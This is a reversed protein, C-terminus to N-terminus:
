VPHKIKVARHTGSAIRYCANLTERSCPTCLLITRGFLAEPATSDAKGLIVLCNGLGALADTASQGLAIKTVNAHDLPHRPLIPSNMALKNNHNSFVFRCNKKTNRM